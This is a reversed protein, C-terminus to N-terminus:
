EQPRAPSDIRFLVGLYERYGCIEQGRVEFAIAAQNQYAHGFM